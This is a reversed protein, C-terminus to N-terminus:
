NNIQVETGSKWVKFEDGYYLYATSAPAKYTGAIDAKLDLRLQKTELPEFNRWYFVLYNDFVEYYAIQETELLQKLQWPQATTGSPMGIISTVMGLAYSKENSVAITMSVNDGVVCTSKKITTELDVFTNPSSEPIYSDWDVTLCYPFSSKSNYFKVEVLQEGESFYQNINDIKIKGTDDLYLKQTVSHGNIIFEVIDNDNLTIESQLQAYYILAKLAMATAQTSGFRNYKRLNLLQEIGQTILSKNEDSETMLALLTFAVTEIHKSNGYSNVVTHEVPLNDFGNITVSQKIKKLLLDRNPYNKRSHSALAMLAMRYTDNSQMAEKYATEYELNIENKVGVSSLAYVIYANAVSEPSKTFSTYGKTSKYYGGTGNRRSLLWRKTRDIMKQSVKPYVDQMETFEMLGFATLTEHPPTRGFWEFGDEKTEFGKLRRYGKAIFALAKEEVEPNIKNTARLYKLVMINPYTASSTQEFCGYPERILSEIGDMVDGVVNTYINLDARISGSVSNKIDFKFQISKAGSISTRAPFYPSLVTVKKTVQDKYDESKVLMEIRGNKITQTPVVSINTTITGNAEISFNKQYDESLTLGEPLKIEMEANILSDSENTLTIPLKVLDELVMYNPAKFDVNFLKKTAYSKTQRGLMGNYGIGEATVSFSTIADSNYFELEACGNEDTQVVPNWYITQRFDTREEPLEDGMYKPVYYQRPEHIGSPNYNYFSEITYNYFLKNNLRKKNYNNIHGGSKTSIIIVGGAGLNGYIATAAADKLVSIHEVESSNLSRFTTQSVPIGDVIFLPEIDGSISARGRIVITTSQGAQGSATAINVGAARGQLLEDISNIPVSIIEESSVTSLSSTVSSNRTVGRYGTVVVSELESLNEDLSVSAVAVAGEVVERPSTIKQKYTKVNQNNVASRRLKINPNFPVMHNKKIKLKQGDERYALLYLYNDNTYKFSFTGDPKTKFDLVKSGKRDMLILNAEIPNDNRDVVSGTQISGQEPLFSVTDLDLKPMSVYNRWGHTLILYDLAEISKPEEPNFYFHPEHIKGNLESSLLLYSLIHDQKDDAFSLLKNDAVAISLNSPLPNGNQDLTQIKLNVKERTQYVEKDM